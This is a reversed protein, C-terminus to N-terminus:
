FRPFPQSIAFLLAAFLLAVNFLVHADFIESLDGSSRVFVFFSFFRGSVRAFLQEYLACGAEHADFSIGADM